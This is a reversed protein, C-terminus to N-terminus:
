VVFTSRCSVFFLSRSALVYLSVFFLVFCFFLPTPPPRCKPNNRLKSGTMLVLFFPPTPPTPCQYSYASFLFCCLVVCSLILCAVPCALFPPLAVDSLAFSLLPLHWVIHCPCLCPCPCPSRFDCRCRCRYRCRCRCRWRCRCRYSCRCHHSEPRIRAYMLKM